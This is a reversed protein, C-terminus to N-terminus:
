VVKMSEKPLMQCRSFGLRRIFHLVMTQREYWFSWLEM